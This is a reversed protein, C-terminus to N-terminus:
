TDSFFLNKKKQFCDLSNLKHNIFFFRIKLFSLSLYTLAGCNDVSMFLICGIKDCIQIHYHLLDVFIHMQQHTPNGCGFTHRFITCIRHECLDYIRVIVLGQLSLFFICCYFPLELIVCLIVNFM